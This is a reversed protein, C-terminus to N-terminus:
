PRWRPRPPPSLSFPLKFAFCKSGMTRAIEVACGAPRHKILNPKKPKEFWFRPVLIGRPRGAHDEPHSAAYFSAAM